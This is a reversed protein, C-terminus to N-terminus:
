NSSHPCCVHVLLVRDNRLKKRKVERYAQESYKKDEEINKATENERKTKLM